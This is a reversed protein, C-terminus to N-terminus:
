LWGTAVLLPRQGINRQQAAPSHYLLLPQANVMGAFRRVM